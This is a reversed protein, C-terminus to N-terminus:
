LKFSVHQNFDGAVKFHILCISLKKPKLFEMLENRPLYSILIHLYAHELQDISIKKYYSINEEM